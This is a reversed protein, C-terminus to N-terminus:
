EAKRQRARPTPSAGAVSRTRAARRAAGAEAVFREVAAIRVEDETRWALLEDALTTIAQAVTPEREAPRGQWLNLMDWLSQDLADALGVLSGLEPAKGKWWNGLTNTTLGAAAAIAVDTTWGHPAARAYVARKFREGREMALQGPVHQASAGGERM